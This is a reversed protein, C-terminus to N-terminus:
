TPILLTGKHYLCRCSFTLTALTVKLKYTQLYTDKPWVVGHPPDDEHDALCVSLFGVLWGALWSVLGALCVSLWDNVLVDINM